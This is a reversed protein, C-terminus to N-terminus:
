FYLIKINVIGRFAKDHLHCLFQANELKKESFDNVCNKLDKAQSTRSMRIWIKQAEGCVSGDMDENKMMELLKTANTSDYLDLWISKKELQCGCTLNTEDEIEMEWIQIYKLELFHITKFSCLSSTALAKSWVLQMDKMDIWINDCSESDIVLLFFFVCLIKESYSNKSHLSAVALLSFLSEGDHMAKKCM